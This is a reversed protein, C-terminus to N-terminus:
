RRERSSPVFRFFALAITGGTMGSLCVIVMEDLCASRWSSAVDIMCAHGQGSPLSLSAVRGVSHGLSTRVPEAKVTALRSVGPLTTIDTPLIDAM